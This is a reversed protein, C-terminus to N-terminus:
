DLRCIAHNGREFNNSMAAYQLILTFRIWGRPSLTTGGGAASAIGNVIVSRANCDAGLLSAPM